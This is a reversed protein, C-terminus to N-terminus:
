YGAECDVENTLPRGDLFRRLQEEFLDIVADWHDARFGSTHPTLIVNTLSWFPSTRPLPEETFVDLVAGALHGATLSAALAAEDVLQGRAVNILVSGRKMSALARADLLRDTAGTWPAALVLVDSSAIVDDTSEPGLVASVGPGGGQQPRRRVGVVVMGLAAARAAVAQGITGLGIIGMRRGQVLWPSRDGILDNQAWVGADQNRIAFPLGRSLALLGGIVHEAIAPSQIGRSNTVVIDRAALERLPLTGAAVASSHVWRLKPAAPVMDATLTWTFAADALPLARRIDAEDLANTFTVDPFTTRLREVQSAPITWALVPQQVSILIHM